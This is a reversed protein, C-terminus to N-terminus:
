KSKSRAKFYYQFLITNVLSPVSTFGKSKVEAELKAIVESWIRWNVQTKGPAVAGRSRVMAKDM